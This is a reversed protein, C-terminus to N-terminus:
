GEPPVSSLIHTAAAIEALVAPADDFALTDGRGDRTTGVVHRDEGALRTAIRGSTYGLGLILLRSM